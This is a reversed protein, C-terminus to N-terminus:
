DYHNRYIQGLARRLVPNDAAIRFLEDDTKAPRGPGLRANRATHLRCLRAEECTLRQDSRSIAIASTPWHRWDNTSTSYAIRDEPVPDFLSHGDYALGNALKGGLLAAFTPAIDINAVLRGSNASLTAFDDVALGSPAKVLFIPSLIGEDFTNLRMRPMRLTSDYDFEGHDGTIVILADDLRGTKHLADFLLRFGAEAIYAARARRNQIHEPIAFASATQFPWHLSQPYLTLFLKGDAEAITQAATRYVFHDDVGLDNVFPLGSEQASQMQDTRAGAFFAEFGAWRMTSSTLFATRYGRAAAYQSVFPLAQMKTAPEHAGSGTLISPVSIDTANSNTVANPFNVWRGTGSQAVISQSLLRRGDSAPTAAGASEMIVLIITKPEARPKGMTTFNGSRDTARLTQLPRGPERLLAAVQPDVREFASAPLFTLLLSAALVCITATRAQSRYNIFRAGGLAVGITAGAILWVSPPVYSATYAGLAGLSANGATVPLYPYIKVFPTDFYRLATLDAVLILTAALGGGLSIASAARKGAFIPPLALIAYCYAAISVFHEILPAGGGSGGRDLLLWPLALVAAVAITLAADRLGKREALGSM